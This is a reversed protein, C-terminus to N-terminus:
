KNSVAKGALYGTQSLGTLTVIATPVTPLAGMDKNLQTIFLYIYIFLAVLTWGFMQFKMLDLNDPNKDDRFLDVFEYDLTPEGLSFTSPNDGIKYCLKGNPTDIVLPSKSNVPVDVAILDDDFFIIPAIQRNFRVRGKKGFDQGQIVMSFKQPPPNTSAALLSKLFLKPDNASTPPTPPTTVPVGQPILSRDIADTVVFRTVCATKDEGNSAAIFSSLVGSSIAIGALALLAAPIEVWDYGTARAAVLRTATAEDSATKAATAANDSVAQAAEAKSKLEADGPKAVAAVAAEVAAKAATDATERFKKAKEEAAKAENEKSEAYAKAEAVTKTNGIIKTHIAMASAFASFIVLTWLFAQLRSLSLRNDSGAIYAWFPYKRHMRLPALAGILWIVFFVLLFVLWGYKEDLGM